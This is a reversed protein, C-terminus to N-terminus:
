VSVVHLLQSWVKERKKVRAGRFVMLKRWAKTRSAGGLRKQAPGNTGRLLALWNGVLLYVGTCNALVFSFVLHVRGAM